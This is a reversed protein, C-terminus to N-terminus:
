TTILLHVHHVERVVHSITCCTDEASSMAWCQHLTVLQVLQTWALHCLLNMQYNTPNYGWSRCLMCNSLQSQRSVERQSWCGPHGSCCPCLCTRRVSQMGVISPIRTFLWAPWCALQHSEVLWPTHCCIHPWCRGGAVAQSFIVDLSWWCVGYGHSLSHLLRHHFVALTLQHCLLHIRRLM